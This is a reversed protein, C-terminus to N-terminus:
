TRVPSELPDHCKMQSGYLPVRSSKEKGYGWRADLSVAGFTGRLRTEEELASEM